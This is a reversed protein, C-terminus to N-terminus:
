LLRDDEMNEEAFLVESKSEIGLDVKFSVETKTTLFVLKPKPSIRTLKVMVPSM